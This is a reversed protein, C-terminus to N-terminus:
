LCKRRLYTMLNTIKVDCHKVDQHVYYRWPRLFQQYSFTSVFDSITNSRLLHLTKLSIFCLFNQQMLVTNKKGHCLMGWHALADKNDFSWSWMWVCWVRYSEEPRTILRVWLSRGSLVYCKCCVSIWAGPPIRVRLGLFRVAASGRRLGRSWHSRCIQIQNESLHRYQPCWYLQM